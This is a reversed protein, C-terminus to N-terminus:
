WRTARAQLQQGSRLIYADEGFRGGVKSRVYQFDAQGDGMPRARFVALDTELDRSLVV